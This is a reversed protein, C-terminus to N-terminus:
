WYKVVFHVIVLASAIVLGVSVVFVVVYAWDVASLRKM